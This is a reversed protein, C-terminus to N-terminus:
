RPSSSIRGAPWGSADSAHAISASGANDELWLYAIDNNYSSLDIAGGAYDLVVSSISARGPAINVTTANVDDEAVCLAGASREALAHLARVLWQYYPQLGEAPYEIGTTAHRTGVLEDIQEPTLQEIAM